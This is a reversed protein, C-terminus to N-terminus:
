MVHMEIIADMLVSCLENYYYKMILYSFFKGSKGVPIGAVIYADICPHIKGEIEFHMQYMGAPFSSFGTPLPSSNICMRAIEWPLSSLTSFMWAFCLPVTSNKLSMIDRDCDRLRKIPENNLPLNV